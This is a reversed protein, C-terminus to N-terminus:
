DTWYSRSCSTQSHGALPGPPALAWFSPWRAMARAFGAAAERCTTSALLDRAQGELQDAQERLERAKQRLNAAATNLRAAPKMTKM